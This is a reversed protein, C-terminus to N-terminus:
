ICYAVFYAVARTELMFNIKLTSAPHVRYCGSPLFVCICVSMPREVILLKSICLMCDLQTKTGSSWSTLEAQGVPWHLKDFWALVTRPGDLRVDTRGDTRGYTRVDLKVCFRDGGLTKITDKRFKAYMSGVSNPM